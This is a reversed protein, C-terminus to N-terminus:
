AQRSAVALNPKQELHRADTESTYLNSDCQWGKDNGHKLHTASRINRQFDSGPLLIASVPLIELVHYRTGM